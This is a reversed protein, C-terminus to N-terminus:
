HGIAPLIKIRQLFRRNALIKAGHRQVRLGAKVEFLLDAREFRVVDNAPELSAIRFQLIFIDDEARVPIMEAFM